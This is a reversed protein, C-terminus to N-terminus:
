QQYINGSEEACAPCGPEMFATAPGEVRRRGVIGNADELAVVWGDAFLFASVGVGGRLTLCLRTSSPDRWFGKATSQFTGVESM